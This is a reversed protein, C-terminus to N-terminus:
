AAQATAPEPERTPAQRVAYVHYAEGALLLIWIGGNTGGLLWDETAITPVAALAAITFWAMPPSGDPRRVFARRVLLVLGLLFALAGLVGGRRFAGVAANDTNLKLVRGTNTKRVVVARSTKADGFIKEVVTAYRWDVAVQKWTQTRGSTVDDGGFRSKFLFGQGGSLVLVLALVAFPTAAALWRRRYEPLDTGWRRWVVAAHLVAAAGGFVFAIRSNTEYLVFGAVLTVGLRQWLAFARDPGVRIAAIMALGAISNPHFYLAPGGWFRDRMLLTAPDNNPVPHTGDFLNGSGALLLAAVGVLIAAAIGVSLDAHGKRAARVGAVVAMAALTFVGAYLLRQAAVGAHLVLVAGAIGFIWYALGLWSTGLRPLARLNRLYPWAWVLCVVGEVLLVAWIVLPHTTATWTLIGALTFCGGIVAGRLTIGPLSLGLWATGAAIAGAVLAKLAETPSGTQAYGVVAAGVAVLAAIVAYVRQRGV